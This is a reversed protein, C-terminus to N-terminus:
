EDIHLESEFKRLYPYVINFVLTVITAIVFGLVLGDLARITSMIVPTRMHAFTQVLSGQGITAVVVFALMILRPYKKFSALTALFFGVHGIMFEKERPRAYMVEELFLRMKIEIEPVPAGQTHGSRGIFIWAVFAVMAAGILVEMTLKTQMVGKIQTFLGPKVGNKAFINHKYLYYLTVLVIPMLFTLKVGRYIDMELFFRVDGLVAALYMGGILSTFVALTLLKMSVFIIKYISESGEDERIKDWICIINIMSLAPFVSASLLAVFQRVSKGQGLFIPICLLITVLLVITIQKNTSLTFKSNLFDIYLITASISGLVVMFLLSKAPFYPEFVGARGLTFDRKKVSDTVAKVYDLNTQYLTKDAEAEEFCHLFNIRINREEDTLAFRRVADAIKLKGRERKDIVYLRAVKYDMLPPYEEIALMPAFQLQVFSEAMALTINRKKLESAVLSVYRKAGFSETDTFHIGSVQVGSKDLRSFFHKINEESINQYNLPRVTILFGKQTVDKLEQTSIGLHRKSVFKLDGPIFVVQKGSSEILRFLPFRQQIDELLEDWLVGPEGMVYLGTEQLSQNSINDAWNFGSTKLRRADMIQSNTFFSVKGTKSLKEINTDYVNLTTVGVNKFDALTEDLTKGSLSALKDLDEYDMMIEVQRNNKEINHRQMNIFLASCLGILIFIYIVINNKVFKM